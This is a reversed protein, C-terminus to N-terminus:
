PRATGRCTTRRSAAHGGRCLRVRRPVAAVAVPLPGQPGRRARDHDPQRQPEAARDAGALAAQSSPPIPVWVDECVEAHVVLGPVDLAEFLLDPGFPAELAGVRIDEGGQDDGPAYWRREYFERYTPLYSKPAVGLLEGRHIVVACNYLRNRHRLPAGVVLMPFLDASAEVLREVAAEVADLVADQM